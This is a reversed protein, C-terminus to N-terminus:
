LGKEEVEGKKPIVLTCVSMEVNEIFRGILEFIEIFYIFDVYGQIGIIPLINWKGTIFCDGCPQDTISYLSTDM